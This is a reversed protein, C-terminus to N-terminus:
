FRFSIHIGIDASSPCNPGHHKNGQCGNGPPPQTPPPPNSPPTPSSPPAPNSPPPPSSSSSSSSSTPTSASTTAVTPSAALVSSGNSSGGAGRASLTGAAVAAGGVALGILIWRRRHSMRLGVGTESADRTQSVSITATLEGQPSINVSQGPQIFIAKPEELSIVGVSGVLCTIIFSGDPSAEVNSTSQEGETEAVVVSSGARLNIGMTGNESSMVIRGSKLEAIYQRDGAFVVQTNPSIKFTGKGSLTFTASGVNGTRMMDGSFIASGLPAVSGNVYVEGVTIVSGIAERQQKQPLAAGRTLGSLLLCMAVLQLFALRNASTKMLARVWAHDM